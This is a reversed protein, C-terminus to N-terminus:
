ASIKVESTTKKQKLDQINLSKNINLNKEFSKKKKLRSTKRQGKALTGADDDNWPTHGCEERAM